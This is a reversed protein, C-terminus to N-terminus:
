REPLGFGEARIAARGETGLLWRRLRRTRATSRLDGLQYSVDPTPITEPSDLARYDSPVRRGLASRMVVAAVLDRSRLGRLTSPADPFTRETHDRVPEASGSGPPGFFWRAYKGVLDGIAAPGTQWGVAGGPSLDEASAPGDGRGVFVVRDFAAVAARTVGDGDESWIPFQTGVLVVMDTRAPDFPARLVVASDVFRVSERLAAPARALVGRFAQDVEIRPVPKPAPTSGSPDDGGCGSAGLAVAAVVLLPPVRVRM